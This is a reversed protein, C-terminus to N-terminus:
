RNPPLLSELYSMIIATAGRNENIFQFSNRGTQARLDSDDILRRLIEGCEKKTKVSFLGEKEQLQEAEPFKQHNKGILIPLGFAAPELINHLGTKGAAGGVYAIDAYAYIKTLLGVTDIILVSYDTLDKHDKESFVVSKKVLKKRFAVIHSAKIQHPAIIFKVTEGSQNIFDLFLEEDEPWTSGCVVCLHNDKFTEVFDLRNDMELQNSVRDFRTDGSISVNDFGQKQLLNASTKNQVFIHKFSKLAEKMFAYSSKFYIQNPRFNGSVLLAPIEKEKLEKLYNPWIEYKVFLALEPSAERVFRRANAKTDLPLYTTLDALENDKKVEYGSPSFFTVWIKHQPFQQRIAKLIPVGQEYEGLSAAHLWIIRDTSSFTDELQRFTNKRGDVFKKMKANFLKSLPLLKELLATFFSYIALM